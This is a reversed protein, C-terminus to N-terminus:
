APLVEIFSSSGHRILYIEVELLLTRLDPDKINMSTLIKNMYMAVIDIDLIKTISM